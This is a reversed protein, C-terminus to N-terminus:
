LPELGAWKHGNVTCFQYTGYALRNAHITWNTPSAPALSGMALTETCYGGYAPLYRDTNAVFLQRNQDARPVM